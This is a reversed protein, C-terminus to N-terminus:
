KYRNLVHIYYIRNYFIDVKSVQITITVIQMKKQQFTMVPIDDRVPLEDVAEQIAIKLQNRISWKNIKSNKDYQIKYKEPM